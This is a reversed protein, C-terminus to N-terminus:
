GRNRPTSSSGLVAFARRTRARRPDRSSFGRRPERPLSLVRVKKTRFRPRSTTSPTRPSWRWPSPRAPSQPKFLSRPRPLDASPRTARFAGFVAVARIPVLDSSRRFFATHLLVDSAPFPRARRPRANAPRSLPRPCRAACTRTKVFIQMTAHTHKPAHPADLLPLRPIPEFAFSSSLVRLELSIASFTQRWSARAM